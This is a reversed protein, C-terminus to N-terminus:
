ENALLTVFGFIQFINIEYQKNIVAVDHRASVQLFDKTQKTKMEKRGSSSIIRASYETPPLCVQSLENM